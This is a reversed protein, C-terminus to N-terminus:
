CSEVKLSIKQRHNLAAGPPMANPPAPFYLARRRYPRTRLGGRRRSVGGHHVSDKVNAVEHEVREAVARQFSREIEDEPHFARLGFLEDASRAVARDGDGDV